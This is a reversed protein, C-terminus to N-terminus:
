KEEMETHTVGQLAAPMFILASFNTWYQLEQTVPYAIHQHKYLPPQQIATLVSFNHSCAFDM